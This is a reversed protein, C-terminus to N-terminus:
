WRRKTNKHTHGRVRVTVLVQTVSSATWGQDECRLCSLRRQSVSNGNIAQKVRVTLESQNLQRPIWLCIQRGPFVNALARATAHRSFFRATGM